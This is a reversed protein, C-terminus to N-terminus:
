EGVSDWFIKRSKEIGCNFLIDLASLGPVFEHNGIQNYVPHNFQQYAVHVGDKEFIEDKMYKKAGNGSYYTDARVAKCLELILDSKRLSDDIDLTSQMVLPTHIDFLYRLIEISHLTVDCLFEPENYFVSHIATWVEDFYRCKKYASIIRGKQKDTWVKFDKERIKRYEQKFNGHQECLVNLYSIEGNLNIIRNRHMYSRRTLQVKDLFIFKDAHAMKELYGLWPFYHMQHIAAIM